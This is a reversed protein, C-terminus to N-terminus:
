NRSQNEASTESKLVRPLRRLKKRSSAMMILGAILPGPGIFVIAGRNGGTLFLLPVIIMLFGTVVIVCLGWTWLQSRSADWEERMSDALADVFDVAEDQSLGAAALYKAMLVPDTSDLLWASVVPRLQELRRPMELARLEFMSRLLPDTIHDDITEAVNEPDFAQEVGRQNAGARAKAIVAKAQALAKRPVRLTTDSVLSHSVKSSMSAVPIGAEDLQDALYMAEPENAAVTAVVLDHLEESTYQPEEADANDAM